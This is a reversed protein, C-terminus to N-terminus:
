PSANMTELFQQLPTPSVQVVGAFPQEQMAILGLAVVVASAFLTLAAFTRLMWKRLHLM